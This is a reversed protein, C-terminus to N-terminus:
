LEDLLDAGLWGKERMDEDDIQQVTERKPPEYRESGKIVRDEKGMKTEDFKEVKAIEKMRWPMMREGKEMKAVEEGEGSNMMESRDIERLKNEKPLPLRRPLGQRAQQEGEYKYEERTPWGVQSEDEAGPAWISKKGLVATLDKGNEFEIGGMLKQVKMRMREREKDEGKLGRESVSQAVAAAAAVCNALRKKEEATQDAKYLAQHHGYEQVSQPYFPSNTVGIHTGLSHLRQLKALSTNGSSHWTSSNGALNIPDSTSIDNHSPNSTM